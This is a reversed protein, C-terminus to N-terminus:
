GVFFLLLVIRECTEYRKLRCVFSHVQTFQLSMVADYWVLAYALPPTSKIVQAFSILQKRM